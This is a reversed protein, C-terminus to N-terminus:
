KGGGESQLESFLYFRPHGKSDDFEVCCGNAQVTSLRAVVGVNMGPYRSEPWVKPDRRVRDGPAFTQGKSQARANRQQISTRSRKFNSTM